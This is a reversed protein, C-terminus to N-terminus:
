RLLIDSYWEQVNSIDKREEHFNWGKDTKESHTEVIKVEGDLNGQLLKEILERKTM